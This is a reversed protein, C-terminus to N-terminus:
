PTAGRTPEDTPEDTPEALLEGIRDMRHRWVSEFEDLLRHAARVTEINCRVIQERGRREKTM